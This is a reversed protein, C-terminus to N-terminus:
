HCYKRHPRGPQWLTNDSACLPRWTNLTTNQHILRHRLRVTWRFDRYQGPKATPVGVRSTARPSPIARHAELTHPKRTNSERSRSQMGQSPSRSTLWRSSRGAKSARRSNAEQGNPDLEENDLPANPKAGGPSTQQRAAPLGLESMALEAHRPRQRTWTGVQSDTCAPPINNAVM